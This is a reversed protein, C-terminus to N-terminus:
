DQDRDDYDVLLSAIAEEIDPISTVPISRVEPDDASKIEYTLHYDGAKDVGARIFIPGPDVQLEDGNLEVEAGISDLLERDGMIEQYLTKLKAHAEHYPREAAAQAEDRRTLKAYYANRLGM